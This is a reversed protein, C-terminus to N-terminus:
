ETLRNVTSRVPDQPQSHGLPTSRFSNKKKHKERTRRGVTAGREGLTFAENVRRALSGDPSSRGSFAYFFFHVGEASLSHKM